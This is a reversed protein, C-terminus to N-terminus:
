QYHASVRREVAAGGPRRGARDHDLRGTERFAYLRDAAAVLLVGDAIVLNGGSAGRPRLPIERVLAPEWGYQTRLTRQELVFLATRTPWYVYSGALVGRGWGRPNPRAHGRASSTARPFQGVMRGTAVDLWYLCDGSALLRDSGVGLLHNVDALQDPDTMWCPRGTIADLAMVRGSDSPAVFVFDRYVLCPNLDRLLYRDDWDPDGRRPVTRPYATLWQIEGSAAAVAAVVGLNTNCFLTGQDLTLLTHTIEHARPEGFGEAACLFRRWILRGQRADFCAVHSEIRVSDRRRLAVYLRGGAVLPSGEFAWNAWEPGELKIELALRRQATLDLAVLKGPPQVPEIGNLKSGTIPSGVRAYARQGDATITFRPVGSVSHSPLGRRPSGSGDGRPFVVQGTHLDLGEVDSEGIGTRIVVLGGAVIPHYSLLGEVSEGVRLAVLSGAQQHWDLQPLEVSWAPEGAVDIPQPAVAQRSPHGAFTPWDRPAAPAPWEGSRQLMSELLAAYRGSQGGITGSAEPELRRLLELEIRARPEDGGLISTVVLRARIDAVALDTDPYALWTRAVSDQTLLPALTDWQADFDAGRLMWWLPRGETASLANGPLGPFRLRSSMREWYERAQRYEGRELAHSGLRFLAQDGVSSVFFQDVIRQLWRSDHEAESQQLWQEALPDVQTRYIRVAEPATEHLRALWQHCYRRATVYRVFGFRSDAGQPDVAILTEPASDMVRRVADVAESFQGNALFADARKLHAQATNDVEAVSVRASTGDDNASHVVQGATPGAALLVAAM